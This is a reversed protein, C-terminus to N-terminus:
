RDGGSFLVCRLESTFRRGHPQFWLQDPGPLMESFDVYRGGSRALRVLQRVLIPSDWDVYIPKPEAPVKAPCPVIPPDTLLTLPITVGPPAMPVSVIPPLKMWPLALVSTTLYVRGAGRLEDYAAFGTEGPRPRQFAVRAGLRRFGVSQHLRRADRPIKGGDGTLHRRWPQGLRYHNSGASTCSANAFM